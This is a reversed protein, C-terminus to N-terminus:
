PLEAVYGFSEAIRLLYKGAGRRRPRPRPVGGRTVRFGGPKNGVSACLTCQRDSVAVSGGTSIMPGGALWEGRAPTLVCVGLAAPASGACSQGSAILAAASARPKAFIPKAPTSGKSSALWRSASYRAAWR